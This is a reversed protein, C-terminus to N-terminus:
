RAGVLIIVAVAFLGSAGSAEGVASVPVGLRSHLGDSLTVLKWPKAILAASWVVSLGEGVVLWLRSSQVFQSRGLEVFANGRRCSGGALDEPEM